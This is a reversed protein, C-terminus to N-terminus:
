PCAPHSRTVPHSQNPEQPGELSSHLAQLRSQQNTGLTTQPSTGQACIWSDPNDARDRPDELAPAGLHQRDRGPQLHSSPGPSCRPALEMKPQERSSHPILACNSGPHLRQRVRVRKRRKRTGGQCGAFLVEAVDRVQLEVWDTGFNDTGEEVVPPSEGPGAGPCALKDEAAEWPVMHEICGQM